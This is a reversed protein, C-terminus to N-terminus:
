QDVGGGVRKRLKFEYRERPCGDCGRGEMVWGPRDPYRGIWGGHGDQAPQISYGRARCADCVPEYRIFRSGDRKYTPRPTM